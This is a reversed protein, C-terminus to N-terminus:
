HRSSGRRGRGGRGRGRQGGRGSRGGRHGYGGRGGPAQSDDRTCDTRAPPKSSFDGEIIERIACTLYSSKPLSCSLLLVATDTPQLTPPERPAASESLPTEIVCKLPKLFETFTDKEAIEKGLLRDSDSALLPKRPYTENDYEGPKLVRYAVHEARQLMPRYSGSVYCVGHKDSVFDDLGMNFLEKCCKKYSPLLYTPYLVDEGPLPLVVDYISYQSAKELSDVIVVEYKANILATEDAADISEEVSEEEGDGEPGVMENDPVERIRVLDGLLVKDCGYKEIRESVVANWLLSQVAHCYLGLSTKTLRMLATVFSRPEQVLNNLILRENHCWRPLSQLARSADGHKLYWETGTVEELKRLKSPPAAEDAGDVARKQGAAETETDTTYSAPEGPVKSGEAKIQGVREESEDKMLDESSAATSAEGNQINVFQDRCQTDGLIMRVASEYRHSLLAAGVEYTKVAGTGFRQMGFYNIFGHESLGRCLDEIRDIDTLPIDRVVLKFHNGMLLGLRLRYPKYEFNSLRLQRDWEKKTMASQVQEICTKHVSIWQCTVGRRDKTGAFGFNKPRCGICQAMRSIAESTDRNSKQLVFHLFPPREKPWRSDLFWNFRTLAPSELPRGILWAIAAPRLVVRIFRFRDDGTANVSVNPLDKDTIYGIKENDVKVKQFQTRLPSTFFCRKLTLAERTEGDANVSDTSDVTQLGTVNKGNQVEYADGTTLTDTVIFPMVTRLTDHLEKRRQKLAEKDGGGISGVLLCHCRGLEKRLFETTVGWKAIEQDERNGEVQTSEEKDQKSEDGAPDSAEKTGGTAPDTSTPVDASEPALNELRYSRIMNLWQQLVELDDESLHADNILIERQENKLEFPHCLVDKGSELYIQEQRAKRLDNTSVLEELQCITGDRAIERVHFDEWLNKITGKIGPEKRLVCQLCGNAVDWVM